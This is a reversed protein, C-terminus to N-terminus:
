HCCVEYFSVIGIVQKTKLRYIKSQMMQIVEDLVEPFVGVEELWKDGAPLKVNLLRAAVVVSGVAIYQPKYQLCLATKLWGDVLSWAVNTLETLVFGGTIKDNGLRKLAAVLTKYPLQIELDFGITTLVVREAAIILEKKERTLLRARVGCFEDKERVDHPNIRYKIMQSVIQDHIQQGYVASVVDGLARPTDEAKHSRLKSEASLTIGDRRSPSHFETEQSSFYWSRGM